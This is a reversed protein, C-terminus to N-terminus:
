FGAPVREVRVRMRRDDGVVVFHWDISLSATSAELLDSPPNPFPSAAHFAGVAARDFELYGASGAKDIRLVEGQANLTVRLKTIREGSFGHMGQLYLSEMEARLRRQWQHHLKERIREFFSAYKYERMNLLTNAGIALHPLYDDTASYGDGEPVPETPVAAPFRTTQGQAQPASAPARDANRAAAVEHPPSLKFLDRTDKLGEKLVNKFDGIRAARTNQDVRQNHRGLFVEQYELPAKETKLQDDAQALQRAKSPTATERLFDKESLVRTPLASSPDFGKSSSNNESVRLLAVVAIHLLLSFFLGRRM